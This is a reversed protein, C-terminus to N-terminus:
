YQHAGHAGFSVTYQLLLQHDTKPRSEDNNYQIRFRGFESTSYDVMASNRKPTVGGLTDLVTGAFQAGPDNAHVEDHRLGFRWQPMFQYIGQLYWGTQHGSYALTNFSGTEDRLYYEGQLKFNTDVPNGDPAWKYVADFIYTDSDGHFIEAGDNTTRDGAKAHLWSVGGRVSSSENIDTGAHGFFSYTGVYRSGPGGAPFVDGRFAETGLELFFDTPALWRLQVGDDDYQTNLFARQPLSTDAFDWTHAHQENMYGIGSFFRGARLTFGWPLSTTQLFAEEVSVTGERDVSLTLNGYLVPDINASFNLESEGLAFGRDGPSTDDGLAFGPIRYTAPNKSFVSFKGDLVVGIAPNFAGASAGATGTPGSAAPPPAAAAQTAARQAESAQSTASAAASEAGKLRQEMDQLRTEYDRRMQELQADYQRRMEQLERQISQLRNDQGIAPGAGMATGAAFAALGSLMSVNRM